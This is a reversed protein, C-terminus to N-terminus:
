FLVVKFFCCGLVFGLVGWWTNQSLYILSFVTIKERLKIYITGKNQTQQKVSFDIIVYILPVSFGMRFGLVNTPLKMTKGPEM